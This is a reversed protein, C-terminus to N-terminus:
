THSTLDNWISMSVLDDSHLYLLVARCLPCLPHSTGAALAHSRSSKPSDVHVDVRTSHLGGVPLQFRETTPHLRTIPNGEHYRSVIARCYIYARVVRTASLAHHLPKSIQSRYNDTRQFSRCLSSLRGTGFFQNFSVGMAM